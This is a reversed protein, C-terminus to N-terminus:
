NYQKLLSVSFIILQVISQQSNKSLLFEYSKPVLELLEELGNHFHTPQSSTSLLM